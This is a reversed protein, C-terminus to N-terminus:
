VFGNDAYQRMKILIATRIPGLYAQITKDEIEKLAYSWNLIRLSKREEDTLNYHDLSRGAIEYGGGSNVYRKTPDSVSSDRRRAYNFSVTEM